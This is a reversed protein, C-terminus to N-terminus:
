QSMSDGITFGGLGAMGLAASAVGIEGFTGAGAIVGIALGGLGASAVITVGLAIIGLGVGFEAWTIGASVDEVEYSTLTHM